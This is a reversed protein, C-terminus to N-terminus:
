SGIKAFGLPPYIRNARRGIVFGILPGIRMAYASRQAVRIRASSTFARM